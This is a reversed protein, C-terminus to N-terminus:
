CRIAPAAPRATTADRRRIRVRLQRHLHRQDPASQQTGGNSGNNYLAGGDHLYNSDFILNSLTPSCENGAGSGNGWGCGTRGVRQQTRRLDYVRALVTSATITNGVTGIMKVVTWSNDTAVGATGIDGSLTTVNSGPNRQGRQSETGAFGGYVATGPAIVFSVGQSAVSPKYVRRPWGSRRARRRASRPKCTWQCPGAAATTLSPGARRSRRARIRGPAAASRRWCCAM